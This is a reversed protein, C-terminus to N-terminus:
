WFFISSVKGQAGEAHRSSPDWLMWQRAQKLKACLSRGAQQSAQGQECPAITQHIYEVHAVRSPGRVVRPHPVLQHVWPPCQLRCPLRCVCCHRHQGNPRPPLATLVKPLRGLGAAPPGLLVPAHNAHLCGAHVLKGAGKDEDEVHQHQWPIAQLGVCLKATRQLLPLACQGPGSCRMPRGSRNSIKWCRARLSGLLPAEAPLTRRPTCQLHHRCGM